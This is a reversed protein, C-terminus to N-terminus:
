ETRFFRARRLNERYSRLTFNLSRIPALWRWSRSKFVQEITDRSTRLARTLETLDSSLKGVAAESLALAARTSELSAQTSVIQIRAATLEDDRARIEGRLVNEMELRWERERLTTALEFNDFVNPPVEFRSVLEM